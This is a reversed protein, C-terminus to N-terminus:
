NPVTPKPPAQRALADILQPRLGKLSTLFARTADDGEARRSLGFLTVGGGQRPMYRYANWEVIYQGDSRKSSLVFDLLVEGSRANRIVSMNVLPDHPKRANLSAIQARVAGAVDTGQAIVELLVMRSHRGPTEGAPLYEQKFYGPRPAASWALGYHDGAIEIPGPVGLYDRVQQALGAPAPLLIAAVLALRAVWGPRWGTRRGLMTARAALGGTM